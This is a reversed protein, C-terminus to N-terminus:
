VALTVMQLTGGNERHFNHDFKGLHIHCGFLEQSPTKSETKKPDLVRELPTQIDIPIVTICMTKKGTSAKNNTIKYEM